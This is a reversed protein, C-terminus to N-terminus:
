PPKELFSAPTPNEPRARASHTFKRQDACDQLLSLIRGAAAWTLTEDSRTSGRILAPNIGPHARGIACEYTAALAFRRATASSDDDADGEGRLEGFTACCCARGAVLLSRM